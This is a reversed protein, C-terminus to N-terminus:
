LIKSFNPYLIQFDFLYQIELTLICFSFIQISLCVWLLITPPLGKNCAHWSLDFKADAYLATQANGFLVLLSLKSGESAVSFVHVLWSHSTLESQSCFIQLKMHHDNLVQTSSSALILKVKLWTYALYTLGKCLSFHFM